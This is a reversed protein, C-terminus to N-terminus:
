GELRKLIMKTKLSKPKKLKFDKDKILELLQPTIWPQKLKNIKFEKVPCLKDLIKSVENHFYAWQLDPNNLNDLAEWNHDTLLKKFKAM